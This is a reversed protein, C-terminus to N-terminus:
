SKLDLLLFPFSWSSFSKSLFFNLTVDQFPKVVCDFYAPRFECFLDVCLRMFVEYHVLFIVYSAKEGILNTEEDYRRQSFVITFVAHSRSSTENMNTAAVTRCNLFGIRSVCEM